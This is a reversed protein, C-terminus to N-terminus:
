PKILKLATKPANRPLYKRFLNWFIFWEIGHIDPLTLGSYRIVQRMEQILNSQDRPTAEGREEKLLKKSEEQSPWGAKM